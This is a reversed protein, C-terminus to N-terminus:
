MYKQKATNNTWIRCRAAMAKDVMGALALASRPASTFNKIDAVSLQSPALFVRSKVLKSLSRHGVGGVWRVDTDGRMRVNVDQDYWTTYMAADQYMFEM